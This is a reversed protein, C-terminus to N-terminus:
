KEIPIGFHQAAKLWKTQDEWVGLSKFHAQCANKIAPTGNKVCEMWFADFSSWGIVPAKNEVTEEAEVEEQQSNRYKKSM